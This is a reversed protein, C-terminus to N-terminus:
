QRISSGDCVRKRDLPGCFRVMRGLPDALARSPRCPRGALLDPAKGGLGLGPPVGLAAKPRQVPQVRRPEAKDTLLQHRMEAAVTRENRGKSPSLRSSIPQPPPSIASGIDRRPNATVPMSASAPPSRRRALERRLLRGQSRSGRRWRRIAREFRILAEVRDQRELDDLM